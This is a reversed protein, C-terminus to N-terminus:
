AYAGCEGCAYWGGCADELVFTTHRGCRVCTRTQYLPLRIRPPRVRRDFTAHPYTDIQRDALMTSSM